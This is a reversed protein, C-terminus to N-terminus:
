YFIVVHIHFNKNDRLRLGHEFCLDIHEFCFINNYLIFLIWFVRYLNVKKKMIVLPTNRCPTEMNLLLKRRIFTYKFLVSIKYSNKKIFLLMWRSKDLMAFNFLLYFSLNLDAHSYNGIIFYAKDSILSNPLLRTPSKLHHGKWIITLKLNTIFFYLNKKSLSFLRKKLSSQWLFARDLFSNLEKELRSLIILM